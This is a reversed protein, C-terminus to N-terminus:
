MDDAADSTYLLCFNDRVDLVAHRVDAMANAVDMRTERRLALMEDRLSRLDRLETKAVSVEQLLDRITTAVSPEFSVTKKPKSSTAPRSSSALIGNSTKSTVGKVEM